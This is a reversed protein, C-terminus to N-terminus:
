DVMQHRVRHPPMGLSSHDTDNKSTARTAPLYCSAFADLTLLEDRMRSGYSQVWPNQWPAGPPRHLRPRSLQIPVLRQPRSRDTRANDCRIFAPYRDRDAAIKDLVDVTADADIHYAVVDALSERTHEDVVHLIKM